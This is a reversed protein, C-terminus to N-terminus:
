LDLKQRIVSALEIILEEDFPSRLDNTKLANLFSMTGGIKCMDLYKRLTKAHDQEAMLGLQMACSEALAYDIYYFPMTQIHHQAYWRVAAYKELGDFDIAPLYKSYLKTWAKDRQDITARPNKYVWHQFEDVVCVYCITYLGEVWKYDSFKKTDSPNFFQDMYPLALFEMGMSYIEALEATGVWLEATEIEQSERFQFAHGMEHSLTRIDDPDGTSNCFVLVKKEDVFSTCYAGTQKNPRSPLDILGKTRMDKFHAGLVPSLKDFVLQMNQLQKDVPVSGLPVSLGADYFVDWPKATKTGLEKAREAFMKKNLPVLHKHVSRRFAAVEKEGYGDRGRIQYALPIYNKYGLNLGMRHRLKVQQDYVAALKAHNKIFWDGSARYAKERLSADDSFLLARAEYVNLTKGNVKIQASALLKEYNVSLNGVEIRLKTNIPDMPKLATEYIPILQQGFRKAMAERHKSEVFAKALELEPKDVVPSIKERLYREAAELKKDAMNQSYAYHARSGESALYAGFDNWDKFLSIWQDPSDSQEAAPLRELFRKYVGAAYAATLKAPRNPYYFYKAKKVM